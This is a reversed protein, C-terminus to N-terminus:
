LDENAGLLEGEGGRVKLPPQPSNTGQGNTIWFSMDNGSTPFGEPFIGALGSHCVCAYFCKEDNRALLARCDRARPIAEDCV